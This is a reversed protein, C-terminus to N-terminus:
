SPFLVHPSMQPSVASLSSPLPAAPLQRNEEGRLSPCLRVCPGASLVARGLDHLVLLLGPGPTLGPAPASM